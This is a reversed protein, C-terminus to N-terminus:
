AAHESERASGNTVGNLKAFAGHAERAATDYALAAEAEDSFYGLHRQKGGAYISARWRKKEISWCVGKYRSSGDHHGCLNHNSEAITCYRLNHARNDLRDGNIHDTFTGEQRPLVLHHMFVIKGHKYGPVQDRRAAYGGNTYHWKRQTLVPYWEDDVTAVKGKTLAIEKSM